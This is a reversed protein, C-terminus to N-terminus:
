TIVIGSEVDGGEVGTVIGDGQRYFDVGNGLGTEGPGIGTGTRRGLKLICRYNAEIGNVSPVPVEVVAPGQAYDFPGLDGVVIRKNM